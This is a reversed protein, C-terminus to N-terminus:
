LIELGNATFRVREPEVRLLARLADGGAKQLQAQQEPNPNKAFEAQGALMVMGLGICVQYLTAKDSMSAEYIKPESRMRQELQQYLPKVKDEPFPQSTYAAYSGALVTTLATALNNKPIGYTNAVTGNFSLIIKKYTEAMQPQDKPPYSAVLQDIGKTTAFDQGTDLSDAAAMPSAQQGGPAQAEGAPPKEPANAKRSMEMNRSIDSLIKSSLISTDDAYAATPLAVALACLVPKAAALSFLHRKM